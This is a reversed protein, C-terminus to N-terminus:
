QDQKVSFSLPAVPLVGDSHAPHPPTVEAAQLTQRTRWARRELFRAYSVVVGIGEERTEGGPPTEDSM